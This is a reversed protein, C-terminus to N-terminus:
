WQSEVVAKTNNALPLERGLAVVSAVIWINGVKPQTASPLAAELQNNM